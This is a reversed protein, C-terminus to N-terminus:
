RKKEGRIIVLDEINIEVEQMDMGINYNKRLKMLYNLLNIDLLFPPPLIIKTGDKLYIITNLETIYCERMDSKMLKLLEKINKFNQKIFDLDYTYILPIPTNIYPSQFQVGDDDFFVRVDGSIVQFLPKRERIEVKLEVGRTSFSREINLDEIANKTSKNLRDLFIYKRIFLWNNKLARIEDVVVYSPITELGDIQLTKIKFFSINDTFYPMFFGLLAMSSLWMFSLFYKLGKGWKKERMIMFHYCLVYQLVMKLTKKSIHNIIPSTNGVTPAAPAINASTTCRELNPIFPTIFYETRTIINILRLPPVPLRATKLPCHGHPRAPEVGAEPVM